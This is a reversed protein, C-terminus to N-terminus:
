ISAAADTATPFHQGIAASKERLSALLKPLEMEDVIYKRCNEFGCHCPHPDAEAEWAYDITLEQGAQINRTARLEVQDAEDDDADILECNPDCSHNVFAGPPDPELSRGQGMDICYRSSYSPDDIMQGRIRMVLQGTRIPRRAVLGRGKGATEVVEYRVRPM